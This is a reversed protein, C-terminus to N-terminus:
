LFMQRTCNAPDVAYNSTERPKLRPVISPVYVVAHRYSSVFILAFYFDALLPRGICNSKNEHSWMCIHWM